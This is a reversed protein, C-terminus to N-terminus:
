DVVVCREVHVNDRDVFHWNYYLAADARKHLAIKITVYRRSHAPMRFRKLAKETALRAIVGHRRPNSVYFTEKYHGRQGATCLPRLLKDHKEYNAASASGEAVLLAAVLAAVLLVVIRSGTSMEEGKGAPVYPCLGAELSFLLLQSRAV